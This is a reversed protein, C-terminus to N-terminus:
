GFLDGQAAEPAPRKKERAPMTYPTSADLRPRVQKMRSGHKQLVARAGDRMGPQDRWWATLRAKAERAAQEHDRIPEPYDRGLVVGHKALQAPPLQWPLHVWPAPLAALDPVWRRVFRGDPDQDLGQKVPNYIRITNIGTSGAQMQCQMWHIGPEYDVFARALVIGTHRWHLWLYHSAFSMV